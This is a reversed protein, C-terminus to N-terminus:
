PEGYTKRLTVDGTFPQGHTCDDASRNEGVVHVLDPSLCNANSKELPLMVCHTEFYERFHPLLAATYGQEFRQLLPLLKTPGREIPADCRAV